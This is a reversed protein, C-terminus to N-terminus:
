RRRAWQAVIEQVIEDDDPLTVYEPLTVGNLRSLARLNAVSLNTVLLQPGEEFHWLTGNPFGEQRYLVSAMADFDDDSQFRIEKWVRRKM